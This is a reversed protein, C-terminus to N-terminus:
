SRIKILCDLFESKKGAEAQNTDSGNTKSEDIAKLERSIRGDGEDKALWQSCPFNYVQNDSPDEVTVKSSFSHYIFFNILKAARGKRLVM